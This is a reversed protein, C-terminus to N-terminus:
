GRGMTSFPRATERARCTKLRSCLQRDALSEQPTLGAWQGKLLGRTWCLQAPGEPLKSLMQEALVSVLKWAPSTMVSCVTACKDSSQEKHTTREYEQLQRCLTMHTCFLRKRIVTSFNLNENVDHPKTKRSNRGRREM